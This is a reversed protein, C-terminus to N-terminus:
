FACWGIIWRFDLESELIRKAHGYNYAVVTFETERGTIKDKCPVQIEALQKTQIM